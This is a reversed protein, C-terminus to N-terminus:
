RVVLPQMWTVDDPHGAIVDKAWDEDTLREYNETIREFYSSALGAYARPGQCTEVTVIMLRPMGTGVHLVKGVPNGAEDTPQTHVDAITPDFEVGDLSQYFLDAYWGEAGVPEGCGEDVRVARNIFAIHEASHPAGTRQHEAMQELTATVEYLRDFYSTISPMLWSGNSLDLGSVLVKGREALQKLNAFFQPYPEVYADPFECSAGGTYSQKAYLLTDHRLEAWSALQANLLRRGWPESAAMAPLGAAQPDALESSPSLARLSGLWLNYLNQRWYSEGHRDVLVRMSALDPAYRHQRLEGGLLVGAQDNGLAAFGADLPNPMMRYVAGRQVRDYVVNSFVHSDVVYRQGFLLFASSLPMTGVGLGNIMIHSSIRQTGYGGDVIAQAIRADSLGALGSADSLGLDVLLSDLEPLTMNDPEGVFAEVTSDITRFDDLAPPDILDRLGYAAELQRRRFVQSHDTLTEILRLDIKGLWIMARFYRKLEETETYHGRPEFQSFDVERDLGFLPVAQAGAAATCKELLSEIEANDAGAVAGVTFGGLLSQALALYLDIDRRTDAGLGAAGGAALRVHMSGLLDDLAPILAAIEITKLVSDYSRHLAYLISDASVYLPLDAAYLTQYGYIFTPFRQRDSIVFGNTTLGALEAQDLAVSSSQILELGAATTPDYTPGSGFPVRYRESFSEADLNAVDDLEAELAALEEAGEAPLELEVGAGPDSPARPFKPATAGGVIPDALWPTGPRTDDQSPASGSCGLVAAAGMFLWLCSSKRRARM